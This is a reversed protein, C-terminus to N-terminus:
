INKAFTQAIGNASRCLQASRRLPLEERSIPIKEACGFLLSIFLARRKAAAHPRANVRGDLGGLM